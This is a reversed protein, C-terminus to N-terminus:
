GSGSLIMSLEFHSKQRGNQPNCQNRTRNKPHTGVWGVADACDNMVRHNRGIFDIQRNCFRDIPLLKEVPRLQELALQIFQAASLQLLQEIASQYQVLKLGGAVVQRFADHVLQDLFLDVGLKSIPHGRGPRKRLFADSVFFETLVHAISEDDGGQTL